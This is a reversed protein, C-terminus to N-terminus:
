STHIASRDVVKECGSRLCWPWTMAGWILFALAAVVLIYVPYPGLYDLATKSEPKGNLFMYNTAALSNFLYLVGAYVATCALTTRYMRWDPRLGVGWALYAAAIVVVGHASYFMIFYFHPFGMRLEPTLMAVFTMTLGWYYVLGFAWRRHTWLAYAAMMWAVDCLHLPLSDKLVWNDPLMSEMMQMVAQTVLIAVALCRSVRVESPLGRMRRGQWALGVALVVCVALSVLHATGFIVFPTERWLWDM